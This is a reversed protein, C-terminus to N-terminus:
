RSCCRSRSIAAPPTARSSCAAHRRPATRATRALWRLGRHLGRAPRFLHEPRPPLGGRAHRLRDRGLARPPTRNSAARPGAAATSTSCAGTRTPAKRSCGSARCAPSKSANCTRTSTACRLTSTRTATWSAGTRLSTARPARRRRRPPSAACISSVKALQASAMLARGVFTRGEHDGLKRDQLLAIDASPDGDVVLLDAYKGAKIQGTAVHGGLLEGGNKTAWRLVDLPKMGGSKVYFALEEAYRGHPLVIIGYDDGDRDERGGTAQELRRLVNDFETRLPAMQEETALSLAADPALMQATFFASPVWFTGRQAMLEICEDDLQDGHDVVDLGAAVAPKIVNKWSCHARVKAGRSHATELVADLEGKSLSMGGAYEPVAHGGSLFIKIMRAGRKIEKRVLARFEDAGSAFVQAGKNGLEWWWKETDTYGGVTDLGRSAPLM